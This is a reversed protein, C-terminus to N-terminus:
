GYDASGDYPYTGDEEPLGDDEYYARRPRRRTINWLFWAPRRLPHGAIDLMVVNLFFYGRGARRWGRKLRQHDERELAAIKRGSRTTVGAPRWIVITGMLRDAFTKGSGLGVLFGLLPYDLIHLVQRLVGKGGGIYRGTKGDITRLGVAGKGFSRGTKGEVYGNAAVCAAGLVIPLCYGHELGLSLGILPVFIVDILGATFRHLPRARPSRLLVAPAV